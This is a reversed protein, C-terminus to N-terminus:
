RTEISKASRSVRCRMVNKIKLFDQKYHKESKNIDSRTNTVPAHKSSFCGNDSFANMRNTSCVDM